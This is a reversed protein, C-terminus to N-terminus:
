QTLKNRNKLHKFANKAKRKPKMTPFKDPCADPLIRVPKGNVMVVVGEKEKEKM